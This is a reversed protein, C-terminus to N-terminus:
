GGLIEIIKLAKNYDIDSKKVKSILVCAKDIVQNENIRRCDENTLISLYAKPSWRGRNGMEVGYKDFQVNNYDTKIRGTPTIRTVTVIKEFANYSYGSQYLVKDGVKVKLEEM